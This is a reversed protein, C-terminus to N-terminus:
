TGNWVHGHGNDSSLYMDGIQGSYSPDLDLATNVSGVIVIGVGRDGKDGEEGREGQIGQIGQDGKEGQYEKIERIERIEKKVKIM